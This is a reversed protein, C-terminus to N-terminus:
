GNQAWQADFAQRIRLPPLSAESRAETADERYAAGVSGDPNRVAVRASGVASIESFPLQVIGREFGLAVAARLDGTDRALTADIMARAEVEISAELAGIPESDPYRQSGSVVLTSRAFRVRKATDGVGDLPGPETVVAAAGGLSATLVAFGLLGFVDPEPDPWKGGWIKLAAVVSIEEHGLRRLYSLALRPILRLTAVDQQLHLNEHVELVLHRVGAEAGLLADLVLSACMIAPPCIMGEIPAAYSRQVPVGCAEYWGILRDVYQWAHLTTGARSARDNAMLAAVGPGHVSRVGSAIAIEAALRPDAGTLRLQNTGPTEEVVQAMGRLGVQEVASARGCSAHLEAGNRWLELLDRVHQSPATFEAAAVVIPRRLGARPAFRNESPVSGIRQGPERDRIAAHDRSSKLLADRGRPQKAPSLVRV